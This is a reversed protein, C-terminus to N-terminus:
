PILIRDVEDAKQIIFSLIERKLNESIGSIGQQPDLFYNSLDQKLKSVRGIGTEIERYRYNYFWLRYAIHFDILQKGNTDFDFNVILFGVDEYSKKNKFSTAWEQKIVAWYRSGSIEDRFLKMVKTTVFFERGNKQLTQLKQIWVKAPLWQYSVREIGTTHDSELLTGVLISNERNSFLANLKKTNLPNFLSPYKEEFEKTIVDSIYSDSLSLAREEYQTQQTKLNQVPVRVTQMDNEFTTPLLPEGDIINSLVVSKGAREITLLGDYGVRIQAESKNTFLVGYRFSLIERLLDLQDKNAYPNDKIFQFLAPQFFFNAENSHIMKELATIVRGKYLITEFTNGQSLPLFLTARLSPPASKKEFQFTTTAITRASTTSLLVTCYVLSDTEIHYTGSLILSDVESLSLASSLSNKSLLDYVVTSAKGDLSTFRVRQAGLKSSLNERVM